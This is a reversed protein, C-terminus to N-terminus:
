ICIYISSYKCVGRGFHRLDTRLCWVLAELGTFGPGITEPSSLRANWEFANLTHRTERNQYSAEPNFWFSSRNKPTACFVHLMSVSWMNASWWSNQCCHPLLSRTLLCIMYLVITRRFIVTHSHYATSPQEAKQDWSECCKLCRGPQLCWEKLKLM